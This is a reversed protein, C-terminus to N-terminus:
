REPPELAGRAAAVLAERSRVGLKSTARAILVRVTSHAIGLDYAILKNSHGLAAYAVVLRERESLLQLRAVLPDNRRALVYRRGDSDFKDVLSWRGDVLGMWQGLASDTDISRLKGRAQDVAVAAARLADRNQRLGADPTAAHELRGRPTLVADAGWPARRSRSGETALRRRLRYGTALHVAIRAYRERQKNSLHVRVPTLAGMCMGIGSPDLGNVVLLDGIGKADFIRESESGAFGPTSRVGDVPLSRFTDRIYQGGNAHLGALASAADLKMRGPTRSFAGIAMREPVSADYTFAFVGLAGDFLEKGARTVGRLWRDETADVDYAAEVVDIPSPM